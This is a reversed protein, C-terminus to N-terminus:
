LFIKQDSRHNVIFSPSVWPQGQRRTRAQRARFSITSVPGHPRHQVRDLLRWAPNTDREHVEHRRGGTPYTGLDGKRRTSIPSTPSSRSNCSFPSEGTDYSRGEGQHRNRTPGSLERGLHLLSFRASRSRPSFTLSYSFSFVFDPRNAHYIMSPPHQHHTIIAFISCHPTEMNRERNAMDGSSQPSRTGLHVM